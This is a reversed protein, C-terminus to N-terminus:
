LQHVATYCTTSRVLFSSCLLLTQLETPGPWWELTSATLLLASHPLIKRMNPPSAEAAGRNMERNAVWQGSQEGEEGQESQEGGRNCCVRGLTPCGGGLPERTILEKLDRSCSREENERRTLRQIEVRTSKSVFGEFGFRAGGDVSKLGSQWVCKEILGYLIRNMVTIMMMIMMMIM